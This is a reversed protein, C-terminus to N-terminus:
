GCNKEVAAMAADLAKGEPSGEDFEHSLAVVKDFAPGFSKLMADFKDDAADSKPQENGAAKIDAVAKCYAALKAKDSPITALAAVAEDIAPNALASALPMSVAIAGIMVQRLSPRRTPWGFENRM